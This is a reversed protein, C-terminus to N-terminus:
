SLGEDRKGKVYKPDKKKENGGGGGGGCGCVCMCVRSCVCVGNSEMFLWGDM